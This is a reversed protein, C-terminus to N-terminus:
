DPKFTRKKHRKKQNEIYTAVDSIQSHGYSFGGFGEQWNFKGRIWNKTNILKSSDKKVDRVLDSIAEKPKMGIFIHIHDPMGNIAIIKHGKNQIIGTIYKYVDEEFR